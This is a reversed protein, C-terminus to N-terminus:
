LVTAYLLTCYLVTCSLLNCYLVTSYLVTCSLLICYLVTSYLLICYLLTCYFVICYLLTCYFVTCYLVTCYLVCWTGGGGALRRLPTTSPGARWAVTGGARRTSARTVATSVSLPDNRCQSWDVEEGWQAGSHRVQGASLGLLEERPQRHEEGPQDAGPEGGGAPPQRDPRPRQVLSGPPPRGASSLLPWRPWYISVRWCPLKQTKLSNKLPIM